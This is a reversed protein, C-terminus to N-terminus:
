GVARSTRPGRTGPARIRRIAHALGAAAVLRRAPDGSTHIVDIDHFAALERLVEVRRNSPVEGTSAGARPEGDWSWPRIGLTGELLVIRPDLRSAASPDLVGPMANCLFVRFRGALANARRIAALSELEDSVGSLVLLVRRDKRAHQRARSLARIRDIHPKLHSHLTMATREGVERTRVAYEAFSQAMSGSIANATLPFAEFVRGKVLLQEEFLEVGRQFGDRVTRDHHRHGNFSDPIYAIKGGRIRMAYFLWDGALRLTELEDREEIKDPRRFVVASVNPITNRQSLALEVEEHGPVCYPYRWHVPSLDETASLYDAAYQRGDPGIMASQCYALTVEPDLFAPVLRELLEPRCTDDSEAIWILDGCALDIGKLWQRFTSASNSENLVFRFPVPSESALRRAVEVSDDSSADDLFLVEHPPYTQDFISRLREELYPAHNYNPVIVSVTPKGSPDLIPQSRGRRLRDWRENSASSTGRRRFFVALRRANRVLAWARSGLIEDLQAKYRAAQHKAGAHAFCLERLALNEARLTANERLLARVDGRADKSGRGATM